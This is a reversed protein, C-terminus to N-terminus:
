REIWGNIKREKKFFKRRGAYKLRWGFSGSNKSSPVVQWKILFEKFPVKTGTALAVISSAQDQTSSPQHVFPHISRCVMARFSVLVFSPPNSLCCLRLFETTTKNKNKKKKPSISCPSPCIYFSQSTLPIPTCSTFNGLSWYLIINFISNICCDWLIEKRSGFSIQLSSVTLHNPDKFDETNGSKCIQPELSPICADQRGHYKQM